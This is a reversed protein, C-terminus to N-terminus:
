PENNVRGAAATSRIVLSVDGNGSRGDLLVANVRIFELYIVRRRTSQGLPFARRLVNAQNEGRRSVAVHNILGYHGPFRPPCVALILRHM